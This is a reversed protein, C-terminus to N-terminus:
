AEFRLNATDSMRISSKRGLHFHRKSDRKLTDRDNTPTFQMITSNNFCSDCVIDGINPIMNQDQIM